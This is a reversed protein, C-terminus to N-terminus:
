ARAAARTNGGRVTKKAIFLFLCGILWNVLAGITMGILLHAGVHLVTKGDGGFAYEPATFVNNHGTIIGIVIGTIAVTHLASNPLVIAPLLHKYSGFGATHARFGLYIIGLFMVLTMSVWKTEAVPLGYLSLGLRAIGVVLILLTVNRSFAVYESLSKGFVKM